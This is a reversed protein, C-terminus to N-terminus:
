QPAGPCVSGSLGVTQPISAPGVFGFTQGAAPYDRLEFRARVDANLLAEPVARGGLSYPFLGSRTFTPAPGVLTDITLDQIIGGSASSEGPADGPRHWRRIVVEYRSAHPVAQWSLQLTGPPTFRCTLMPYPLDSQPVGNLWLYAAGTTDLAQGGAVAVVRFWASIGPIVDVGIHTGAGPPIVSAVPTSNASAHASDYRAYRLVRYSVVGPYPSWDLSAGFQQPYAGLVTVKLGREFAQRQASAPDAVAARVVTPPAARAAPPRQAAGMTAIVTLAGAALGVSAIRVM